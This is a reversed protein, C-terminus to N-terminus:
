SEPFNLSSTAPLNIGIRPSQVLDYPGVKQGFVAQGQSKRRRGDDSGALECKVLLRDLKIGIAQDGAVNGGSDESVDM